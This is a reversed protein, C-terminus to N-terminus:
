MGENNGVTVWLDGYGDFALSGGQHCCIVYQIEFELLIKEDSIATRAENLTFRSVRWTNDTELRLDGEMPAWFVYLWGNSAAEWWSLRRQRRM